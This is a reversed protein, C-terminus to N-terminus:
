RRRRGPGAPRRTSGGRENRSSVGSRVSRPRPGADLSARGTRAAVPRPLTAGVKATRRPAAGRQHPRCTRRARPARRRSRRPAPTSPAIRPRRSLDVARSQGVAARSPPSAAPAAPPTSSQPSRSGNVPWGRPRRVASRRGARPSQGRAVVVVPEVADHIEALRQPLRVVHREHADGPPAALLLDRPREPARGRAAPPRHRRGNASPETSVVGSSRAAAKVTNEVGPVRRRGYGDGPELTRVGRDPATRARRCRRPAGTWRRGPAGGAPRRRPSRVPPAARISPTSTAPLVPLLPPRRSAHNTPWAPPMTAAHPDAPVVAAAEPQGPAGDGRRQPAVEDLPRHPRPRPVVDRPRRRRRGGARDPSRGAATARSGGRRSSHNRCPSVGRRLRNQRRSAGAGTTRQHPRTGRRRRGGARGGSLRRTSAPPSSTFLVTAPGTV